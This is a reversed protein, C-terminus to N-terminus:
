WEDWRHSLNKRQGYYYYVVAAVLYYREPRARKPGDNHAETAGYKGRQSIHEEFANHEFM